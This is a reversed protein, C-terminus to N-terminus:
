PRGDIVASNLALIPDRLRRDGGWACDLTRHFRCLGSRTGVFLDEGVRTLSTVKGSLRGGESERKKWSGQDWLWLGSTTSVLFQERGDQVAQALALVQGQFPTDIAPTERRWTGNENRFIRGDFAAALARGQNDVTLAGCQTAVLGQQVGQPEFSAGDFSVIGERNLVWIRGSADQALQYVLASPLGDGV